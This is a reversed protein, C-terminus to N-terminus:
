EKKNGLKRESKINWLLALNNNALNVIQHYCDMFKQSKKKKITSVNQM